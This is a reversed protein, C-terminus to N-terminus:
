TAVIARAIRIGDLAASVIGGAYGAGEGAPYLGALQPSQLSAPDRPVRIPSSTRSEVGVLVAEETVFGRMQHDFAALAERLRTALPLGTAALVEGIDGAALGPQYSTGPVTSSARSRLFDTVRTAPARRGGGGAVAAARELRRQLDIGALVGRESGAVDGLGIAVVLGSNAYPSDRRSLSMGNVVVGDPETAAPVIWGGPCMCFSFAGRGDAPTYALKYAAAPLKAHGAAPGYQIRDILPQPHEIRVGMAFPKAELHVGARALLEFVDRASHGAAVVVARGLLEGGTALRVGVARGDKVVLDTVRAEFVFQSGVQELHERLATIVKPLKNSGIHPRADVLIQPPAGHATLIEIVDRVDGRKHSRTYLKGDSYTGAGGEGFCYNSDPDVHGHQTLGKLDRRRDQVRKGRDVVVAAIGARALEYACFLGAPGGGVIIVPPGAVERLPAGGLPADSAVGLVVHFRVRGRRADISRKRIELPPLDGASMGLQSALRAALADPDDRDDLGLEVTYDREPDLV